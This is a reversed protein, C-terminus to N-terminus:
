ASPQGIEYVVDCRDAPIVIDATEVARHDSDYYTREIILILAGRSIGLLNAQEQTARAPRPVETSFSIEIDLSRMREVVGQGALPGSEPLLVPTQATISMPEWSVSTQVPRGDAFFEYATCVCPEGPEIGLRRAIETSAPTRPQSHAEWTGTSGRDRMDGRFPSGGREDRYASRVLRRKGPEAARVYTGAGARGELLGEEILREQARQMVNPGVGYEEALRARSPLRENLQWRGAALEARLKDAAVMYPPQQGM